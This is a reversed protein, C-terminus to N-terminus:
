VLRIWVNSKFFQAGQLYTDAKLHFGEYGREIRGIRGHYKASGQTGHRLYLTCSRTRHRQRDKIRANQTFFDHDGGIEKSDEEFNGLICGMTGVGTDSERREM